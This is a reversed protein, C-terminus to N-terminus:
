CFVQSDWSDARRKAEMILDLLSFWVADEQNHTKETLFPLTRCPMDEDCSFDERCCTEERCDKDTCCKDECECASEVLSEVISILQEKSLDELRVEQYYRGEHKKIWM